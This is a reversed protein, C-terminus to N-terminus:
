RDGKACLIVEARFIQRELDRVEARRLVGDEPSRHEGLEHGYRM